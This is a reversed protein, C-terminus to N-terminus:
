QFMQQRKYGKPPEFTGPDLDREAASRLVSESEVSGDATLQRTVVPFGDIDSMLRVMGQDLQGAMPGLGTSISEMMERMFDAMDRFVGMIEDGGAVNRWDTVWLETVPRGERLVVYKVCPYGAMEAREGTDEIQLAALAAPDAQQPMKQKMMEEIAARQGEPVNKLMEQMQATVGAIQEVMQQDFILYSRRSHDIVAVQRLEGNYVIEGESDGLGGPVGMALMKGEASMESVEVVGNRTTEVEFVVGALAPVSLALGLLLATANRTM